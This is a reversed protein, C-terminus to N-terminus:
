NVRTISFELQGTSTGIKGEVGSRANRLAINVRSYIRNNIVEVEIITPIGSSRYRKIIGSSIISMEYYEDCYINGTVTDDM